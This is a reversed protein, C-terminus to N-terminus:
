IAAGCAMGRQWLSRNAAVATPPTPITLLMLDSVASTNSRGSGENRRAWAKKIMERIQRNKLQRWYKLERKRESLYELQLFTLFDQFAEMDDGAMRELISLIEDDIKEQERSIAAKSIAEVIKSVDFDVTRGDRKLVRYMVRNIM